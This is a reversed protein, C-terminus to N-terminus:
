ATGFVSPGLLVRVTRNRRLATAAFSSERWPAVPMFGGDKLMPAHVERADDSAAMLVDTAIVFELEVRRTDGV